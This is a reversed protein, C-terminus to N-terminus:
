HQSLLLKQDLFDAFLTEVLFFWLNSKMGPKMYQSHEYILSHNLTPVNEFPFNFCRSFFSIFVKINECSVQRFLRLFLFHFVYRHLLEWCTVIKANMQGLFPFLSYIKIFISPSYLFTQSIEDHKWDLCLDLRSSSTVWVDYHITQALYDESNFIVRLDVDCSFIREREKKREIKCYLILLNFQIFIQHLGRSCLFFSNQNNQRCYKHGKQHPNAQCYIHARFIHYTSDPSKVSHICRM